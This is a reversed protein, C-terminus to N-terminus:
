AEHFTHPRESFPRFIGASNKANLTKVDSTLSNELVPEPFTRKQMLYYRRDISRDIPQRPGRATLRCDAM